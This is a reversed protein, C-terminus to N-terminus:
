HRGSFGGAVLPAAFGRDRPGSPGLELPCNKEPIKLGGAAGGRGSGYSLGSKESITYPITGSEEKEGDVVGCRGAEADLRRDGFCRDGFAVM